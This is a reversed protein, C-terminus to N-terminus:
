GIVSAFLGAPPAVPRERGLLDAALGVLIHAARSHVMCAHLVETPQHLRKVYVMEVRCSPHESSRGRGRHLLARGVGTVAVFRKKDNRALTQLTEEDVLCEEMDSHACDDRMVDLFVDATVLRVDDGDHWVVSGRDELMQELTPRYLQFELCEELADMREPAHALVACMAERMEIGYLGHLTFDDIDDQVGMAHAREYIEHEVLERAGRHTCKLCALEVAHLRRLVLGILADPLDLLM